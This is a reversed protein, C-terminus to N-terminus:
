VTIDKRWAKLPVEEMGGRACMKAVREDGPFIYYYGGQEKDFLAEIARQFERWSVRGRAEPKIWMPEAHPVYQLVHFGVLEDGQWATYVFSYNPDPIDGGHEAFVPALAEYEEPMLWRYQVKEESM